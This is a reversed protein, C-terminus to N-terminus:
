TARGVCTPSSAPTRRHRAWTGLTPPVRSIATAPTPPDAHFATPFAQGLRRPRIRPWRASMRAGFARDPPSERRRPPCADPDDPATSRLFTRGWRVSDDDALRWLFRNANPQSSQFDDSRDGTERRRARADWEGGNPPARVEVHSRSRQNACSRPAGARKPRTRVSYERSNIVALFLRASTYLSRKVATNPGRPPLRDLSTCCSPSSM